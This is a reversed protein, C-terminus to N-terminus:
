QHIITITVLAIVRITYYIIGLIEMTTVLVAYTGILVVWHVYYIVTTPNGITIADPQTDTTDFRKHLFSAVLSAVGPANSCTNTSLIGVSTPAVTPM